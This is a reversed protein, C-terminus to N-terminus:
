SGGLVTILEEMPNRGVRGNCCNCVDKATIGVEVAKRVLEVGTPVALERIMKNGEALELLKHGVRGNCCNVTHELQHAIRVQAM